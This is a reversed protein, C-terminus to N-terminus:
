RTFVWKCNFYYYYYYYNLIRKRNWRMHHQTDCNQFNLRQVNRSGPAKTVRSSSPVPLATNRQKIVRLFTLEKIYMEQVCPYPKTANDQQQVHCDATSMHTTLKITPTDSADTVCRNEPSITTRTTNEVKRRTKWSQDQVDMKIKIVDNRVQISTTCENKVGSIINSNM